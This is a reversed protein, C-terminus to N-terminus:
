KEFNILRKRVKEIAKRKYINVMRKSVGLEKAIVEIPIKLVATQMLVQLQIENLDNLAEAIEQIHIPIYNGRIYFTIAEISEFHKDYYSLNSEYKDLEFLTIGHRLLKTKNRIYYRKRNIIVTRLYSDASKIIEENIDYLTFVRKKM